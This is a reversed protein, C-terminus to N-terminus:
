NTKPIFGKRLEAIIDPGLASRRSSSKAEVPAPAEDDEVTLYTFVSEISERIKAMPKSAAVPALDQSEDFPVAAAVSQSEDFPVADLSKRQNERNKHAFPPLWTLAKPPLKAEDKEPIFFLGHCVPLLVNVKCGFITTFIVEKGNEHTLFNSVQDHERMWVHVAYAAHLDLVFKGKLALFVTTDKKEDIGEQIQGLVHYDLEDRPLDKLPGERASVRTIVGANSHVEKLHKDLKLDM